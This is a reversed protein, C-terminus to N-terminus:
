PSDQSEFEYPEFVPVFDITQTGDRLDVVVGAVSMKVSTQPTPGFLVEEYLSFSVSLDSAWHIHTNGDCHPGVVHKMPKGPARTVPGKSDMGIVDAVQALEATLAADSAAIFDRM